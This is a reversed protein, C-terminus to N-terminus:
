DSGTGSPDIVTLPVMIALGSHGTGFRVVKEQRGEGVLRRLTILWNSEWPTGGLFRKLAPHNSSVWCGWPKGIEPRIGHERLELCATDTPIRDDGGFAAEILRGISADVSPGNGISVRVRAAALHSFLRVEDKVVEAGTADGWDQKPLWQAAFEPTVLGTSHLSYAGALLAGLQDGARRTGMRSAVAVAFTEANARIERLLGM